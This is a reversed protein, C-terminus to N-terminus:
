KVYSNLTEQIKKQISEALNWYQKSTEFNEEIYPLMTQYTNEDLSNCKEIIEDLSNVIIIGDPNFFSDINNCGWYIPVTKTVFCDILKETFYNKIQANEICIHFQSDFLPFKSDTLIKNNHINDFINQHSFYFNKPNTIKNQNFYVKHRLKHGFTQSKHGTLHSISFNKDPYQYNWIWTTGFPFFVANSCNNLINENYTLILDFIKHYEIITKENKIISEAERVYLIKFCSNDIEFTDLFTDMYLKIPKEFDIEVNPWDSSVNTNITQKM